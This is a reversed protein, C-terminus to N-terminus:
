LKELGGGETDLDIPSGKVPIPEMQAALPTPGQLPKMPGVTESNPEKTQFPLTSRSIVAAKTWSVVMLAKHLRPPSKGRERAFFYQPHALM